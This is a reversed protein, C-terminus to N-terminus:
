PLFLNGRSGFLAVENERASFGPDDLPRFLGPRHLRQVENGALVIRLALSDLKRERGFQM